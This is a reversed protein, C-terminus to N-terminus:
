AARRRAAEVAGAIDAAQAEAVTFFREESVSDTVTITSDSSPTVWEGDIFFRDLHRLQLPPQETLSM